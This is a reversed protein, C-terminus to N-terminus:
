DITACEDIHGGYLEAGTIKAQNGTLIIKAREGQLTIFCFAIGNKSRLQDNAVYIGGGLNEALNNTIELTSNAQLIIYSNAYLSIGAGNYGSHTTAKFLHWLIM